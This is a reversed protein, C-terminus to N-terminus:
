GVHQLWAQQHGSKSKVPKGRLPHWGPVAQLALTPGDEPPGVTQVVTTPPATCIPRDDFVSAEAVCDENQNTM